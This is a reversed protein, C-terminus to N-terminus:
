MSMEMTRQETYNSVVGTMKSLEAIKRKWRKPIDYARLYRSRRSCDLSLFDNNWVNTVDYFQQKM